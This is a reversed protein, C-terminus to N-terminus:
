MSTTSIYHPSLQFMSVSPPSPPVPLRAGEWCEASRSVKPLLGSLYRQAPRVVNLNRVRLRGQVGPLDYPILYIRITIADTEEWPLYSAFIFKQRILFEIERIFPDDEPNKLFKLLLHAAFVNWGDEAVSQDGAPLEQHLQQLTDPRVCVALTGYALFNSISFPSSVGEM